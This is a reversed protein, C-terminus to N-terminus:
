DRLEVLRALEREVVAANSQKEAALSRELTAVALDSRGDKEYVQSLLVAAGSFGPELALARELAAVAEERKGSSLTLEAQARGFHATALEPGLALASVYSERARGWQGLTRYENGLQTFIQATPFLELSRRFHAIARDHQEQRAYASGIRAHMQTTERGVIRLLSTIREVREPEKATSLALRGYIEGVPILLSLAAAAWILRRPWPNPATGPSDAQGPASASRLLVRAVRGDRLKWVAGDLIFHHINVVAFFTEALGVDWPFGGLLHPAMVLGPLTGIATGALLSKWLFRPVSDRAPSSRAYYSTVWLYQLSHAANVWVLSFVLGERLSVSGRLFVAPVTFWLAQNLVLLFAPALDRAPARRLLRAAAAGLCLLCIAVLGLKLPVTIAEPLNAGLLIPAGPLALTEPTFVFDNFGGHIAVIAVLALLVFSAYLLRKTGPDVAVGRRQLFMLALGYNQGSFHWPTWTAYITILASSLWKSHTSFAFLAWVALTLYVAFVFYKRRDERADYVRVLTAGYHPGNILLSIAITLALPSNQFSTTNSIAFLLPLALLYGLGCGILLDPVRGFLWPSRSASGVRVAEVHATM